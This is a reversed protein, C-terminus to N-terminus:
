KVHAIQHVVSSAVRRAAADSGVVFRYFPGLSRAASFGVFYLGTVSSEFRNNLVPSGMYTQVADALSSHLMPLRKVEPQYGTALIIHDAELMSNNSLTLKVGNDTEYVKEVQQQEHLPVKNIVRGRLWSAGAPGHFTGMMRDKTARPLRIFAYPYKELALNVWGYGLGVKPNRLQRIFFPIATNETSLWFISRRTVLQVQADAEHLLAATEL